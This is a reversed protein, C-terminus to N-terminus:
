KKTKNDMVGASVKVKAHRVVQGNMMFGKQFEELIVNEPKDSPVKMLAEHIYPDFTQNETEIISVGNDKMVSNLQSYILEVGDIFDNKEQPTNKLALNFNDIIPLIQLIVNKSAMKHIEEIRKESQKRYNEFNAQTRKLLSVMERLAKDKSAEQPDEKSAEQSAEQSNAKSDEQTQEEKKTEKVM